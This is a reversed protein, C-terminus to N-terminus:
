FSNTGTQFMDLLLTLPVIVNLECLIQIWSLAQEQVVSSTGEFRESIFNYLQEISFPAMDPDFLKSFLSRFDGLDTEDLDNIIADLWYPMAYDWMEFTVIEYTILDCFKTFEQKIQISKNSKTEWVGGVKTFEAPFPLFSSVVLEFHKETVTKIWPLIFKFM